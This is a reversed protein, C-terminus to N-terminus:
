LICDIVQKLEGGERGRNIIDQTIPGIIPRLIAGSGTTPTTIDDGITIIPLDTVPNTTTIIVKDIVGDIIIPEYVNGFDDTIPTNIDYGGGGDEVYVDTVIYNEVDGPTYNEGTSTVYITDLQGYENLIPTAIAGYGRGCNDFFEIIPLTDFGSGPNTVKAGIISGTKTEQNISGFIPVASAPTEGGYIIIETPNCTEPEDCICEPLPSTPTDGRKKSSIKEITFKINEDTGDDDRIGIRKNGSLLAIVSKNDFRSIIIPGYTKGGTFKGTKRIKEKENYSPAGFLTVPANKDKSFPSSSLFSGREFKIIGKDSPIEIKSAAVSAIFPSDDIDMLLDIQGTGEGIVQLNSKQILNYNPLISGAISNEIAMVAGDSLKVDGGIKVVERFTDCTIIQVNKGFFHMAAVQHFSGEYGQITVKKNM